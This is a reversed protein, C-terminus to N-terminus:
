GLATLTKLLGTELLPLSKFEDVFKHRTEEFDMAGLKKDFDREDLLLNAFPLPETIDFPQMNVKIPVAGAMLALRFRIPEVYSHEVHSCWIKYRTRLLVEHLQAQNLHPGTETVPTFHVVYVFGRRDVDEILRQLLELRRPVLHGVFTWPIPRDGSVLACGVISQKETQTLGNFVFHYVRQAKRSAYQHQNYFGLDLLINLKAHQMLSLSDRFWPSRVSELLIMGVQQCCAKLHQIHHM